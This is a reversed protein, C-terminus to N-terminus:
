YSGKISKTKTCYAIVQVIRNRAYLIIMKDFSLNWNPADKVIPVYGMNRYSQLLLESM